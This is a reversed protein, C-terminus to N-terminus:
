HKSRGFRKHWLKHDSEISATMAKSAEVLWNKGVDATLRQLQQQLDEPRRSGLHINATESGMLRLMTPAM